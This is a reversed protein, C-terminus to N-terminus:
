SFRRPDLSIFSRRYARRMNAFLGPKVETATKVSASPMPAFVAIKVTALANSSRGKGKASGLRSANTATARESNVSIDYRRNVVMWSCLRENELMAATVFSLKLKLPRPSASSIGAARLVQFKKSTRPTRGSNPRAKTAFSSWGPPLCTASILWENQIARKPPDCSITPWFIM